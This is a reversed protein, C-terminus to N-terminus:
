YVPELNTLPIPVIEGDKLREVEAVALRAGSEMVQPLTPLGVVTGTTGLHPARLGRVLMGVQFSLPGTAEPSLDGEVRLPILLEPRKTSVRAGADASLM